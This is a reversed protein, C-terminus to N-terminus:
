RCCDVQHLAGFYKDHHRGTDMEDFREDTEERDLSILSRHIWDILETDTVFGDGLNTFLREFVTYSRICVM